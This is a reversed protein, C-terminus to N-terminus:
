DSLNLSSGLPRFTASAEFKFSQRSDGENQTEMKSSDLIPRAVIDIIGLCAKRYSSELRRLFQQESKSKLLSSSTVFLDGEVSGNNSKRQFASWSRDIKGGCTGEPKTRAVIM